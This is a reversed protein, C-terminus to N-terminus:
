LWCSNLVLEPYISTFNGQPGCGKTSSYNKIKLTENDLSNFVNSSIASANASRKNSKCLLSIDRYIRCSTSQKFQDASYVKKSPSRDDYVIWIHHNYMWPLLSIKDFHCQTRFILLNQLPVRSSKHFVIGGFVASLIKEPIRLSDKVIRVELYMCTPECM